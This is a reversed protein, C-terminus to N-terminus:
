FLSLNLSGVPKDVERDFNVLVEKKGQLDTYSLRGYQKGHEYLKHTIKVDDLCYDRLEDIKGARYLEIAKLGDGSKAEGLTAQALNDLKVRFGLRNAIEELMDFSPIKSIEPFYAAVVQDDFGKNNFGVVLDCQELRRWFQPLENETFALYTNDRYSYMGLLSIHLKRPDRSGVDQFTEKTELDYVIVDGM